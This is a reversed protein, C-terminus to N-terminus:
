LHKCQGFKGKRAINPKGHSDGFTPKPDNGTCVLKGNIVNTALEPSNYAIGPVTTNTRNNLIFVSGGIHARLLGMWCTYVDSYTFNGAVSGDEFTMFDPEGSPDTMSCDTNNPYDDSPSNVEYSGEVTVNHFNMELSHDSYVDGMIVDSSDTTCPPGVSVTNCGIDTISNTGSSFNGDVILTGNTQANFTADHAVRLVGSIQVTGFDTLSCNGIVVVSSYSGPELIGSSCTYQGFYQGQPAASAATAQGALMVMGALALAASAVTARKRRTIRM